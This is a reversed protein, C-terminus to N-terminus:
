RVMLASKVKLQDFYQKNLFHLKYQSTFEKAEKLTYVKKNRKRMINLINEFQEIYEGKGQKISDCFDTITNIGKLEVFLIPLARQIKKYLTNLAKFLDEQSCYNLMECSQPMNPMICMVVHGKPNDKIHECIKWTVFHYILKIIDPNKLKIKPTLLGYEKLSNLIDIEIFNDFLINVDVLQLNHEPLNCIM